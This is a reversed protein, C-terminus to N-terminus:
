KTQLQYNIKQYMHHNNLLNPFSYQFNDYIQNDM